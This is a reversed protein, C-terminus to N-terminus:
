VTIHYENKDYNVASEKEVSSGKKAHTNLQIQFPVGTLETIQKTVPVLLFSETYQTIGLNTLLVLASGFIFYNDNKNFSYDKKFPHFRYILFFAIFSQIFAQLYKIFVPNINILQISLLVFLINTITIIVIMPKKIKEIIIEFSPM